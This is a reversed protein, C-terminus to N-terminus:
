YVFDDNVRNYLGRVNDITRIAPVFDGILTTDDYIQLSYLKLHAKDKGEGGNSFLWVPHTGVEVGDNTSYLDGNISLSRYGEEYEAIVEYRTNLDKYMTPAPYFESVTPNYQWTGFGKVTSWWLWHNSGSGSTWYNGSVNMDVASTIELDWVTKLKGSQPVCNTSFHTMGDAEYFSVFRYPERLWVLKDGIYMKTIDTTGLKIDTLPNTGIYTMPM